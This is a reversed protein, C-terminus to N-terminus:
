KVAIYVRTNVYVHFYSKSEDDELIRDVCISRLEKKFHPKIITWMRITLVHMPSILKQNYSPLRKIQLSKMSKVLIILCQDKQFDIFSNIVSGFLIKHKRGVLRFLM